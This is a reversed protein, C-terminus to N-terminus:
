RVARVSGFDLVAAAGRLHWPSQQLFAPKPTRAGKGTLSRGHPRDRRALPTSATSAHLASASKPPTATRTRRPSAHALLSSTSGTSRWPSARTPSPIWAKARSRARYGTWRNPFARAYRGTARLTENRPSVNGGMPRLVIGLAAPCDAEATPWEQPDAHDGHWRARRDATVTGIDDDGPSRARFTRCFPATATRAPRSRSRGSTASVDGPHRLHRQGHGSAGQAMLRHRRAPASQGLPRRFLGEIALSVPIAANALVAVLGPRDEHPAHLAMARDLLVLLTGRKRLAASDTFWSTRRYRAPKPKSM